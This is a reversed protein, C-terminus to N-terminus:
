VELLHLRLLLGAFHRDQGWANDSCKTGQGGRYGDARRYIDGRKHGDGSVEVEIVWTCHTISQFVFFSMTRFHTVCTWWSWSLYNAFKFKLLKMLQSQLVCPIHLMVFYHTHCTSFSFMNAAICMISYAMTAKRALELVEKYPKFKSCPTSSDLKITIISSLTGDLRFIVYGIPTLLAKTTM